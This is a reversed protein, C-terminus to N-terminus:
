TRRDIQNVVLFKYLINLSSKGPKGAQNVPSVSEFKISWCIGRDWINGLSISLYKICLYLDFFDVFNLNKFRKNGKTYETNM